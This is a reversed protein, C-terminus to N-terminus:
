IYPRGLVISQLTETGSTGAADGGTEAGHTTGKADGKAEKKTHQIVVCDAVADGPALSIIRRLRQRKTAALPLLHRLQVAKVLGGRTAVM